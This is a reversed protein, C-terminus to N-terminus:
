GQQDSHHQDHLAGQRSDQVTKRAHGEDGITADGCCDATSPVEPLADSVDATRDEAPDQSSAAPLVTPKAALVWFPVLM